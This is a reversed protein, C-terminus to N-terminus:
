EQELRKRDAEYKDALEDRLGSCFLYLLQETQTLEQTSIWFESDTQSKLLKVAEDLNGYLHRKKILNLRSAIQWDIEKQNKGKIPTAENLGAYYEEFTAFKHAAVVGAQKSEIFKDLHKMRKDRLEMAWEIQKPTGTLEPLGNEKATRLMEELREVREKEECAPCIYQYFSKAWSVYSDAADRNRCIKQIRTSKGCSCKVVVSAKAM